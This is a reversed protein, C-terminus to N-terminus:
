KEAVQWYATSWVTPHDPIPIGKCRALIPDCKLEAKEDAKIAHWVSEHIFHHMPITRESKGVLLGRLPELFNIDFEMFELYSDRITTPSCHEHHYAHYENLPRAFRLGSKSLVWLLAINSLNTDTYGGGVNSHAGLFWAEEVDQADLKTWFEPKFKKRRENIALAHAVRVVNPPSIQHFRNFSDGFALAGVTDWVGVFNIIPVTRDGRPKQNERYFRYLRSLEEEGELRRSQSFGVHNLFGCFSRVAFAGRSFGFTFIKDGPEWRESLFRFGDLIRETTGSGTAGEYWKSLKDAAGGVGNFYIAEGDLEALKSIQGYCDARDELERGTLMEWAHQVNTKTHIERDTIPDLDTQGPQNWTGDICIVYSKM